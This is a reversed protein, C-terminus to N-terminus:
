RRKPPKTVVATAASVATSGGTSNSATVAVRLTAGV